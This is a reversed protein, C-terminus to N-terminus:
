CGDVVEPGLCRQVFLTETETEAKFRAREGLRLTMAVASLWQPAADDHAADVTFSLLGPGLSQSIM